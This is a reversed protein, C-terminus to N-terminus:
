ILVSASNKNTNLLVGIPVTRQSAQDCAAGCAQLRPSGVAPHRRVFPKVLFEFGDIRLLLSAVGIGDALPGLAPNWHGVVEYRACLASCGLVPRM